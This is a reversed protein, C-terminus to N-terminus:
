EEKSSNIEKDKKMQYLKETPNPLTSYYRANTAVYIIGSGSILIFYLLIKDFMKPPTIGIIRAPEQSPDYHGSSFRQIVKNSSKSTLIQTKHLTRFLNHIANM